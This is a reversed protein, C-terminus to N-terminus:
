CGSPAGIATLYTHTDNYFNTEDTSTFAGIVVIAIQATSYNQPTGNGNEAMVFLDVSTISGSATANTAVSTGNQYLTSLTSSTRSGIWLGKVSSYAYDPFNGDNENYFMDGSAPAVLSYSDGSASFAGIFYGNSNASANLNCAGLTAANIVFNPSTATLPDFGTDFYCSTGDGTYGQNANFTCGHATLGYSTSIWNLVANATSNIATVYLADTHAVWGHTVGNCIYTTVASANESGDMRAKLATAQSCGASSVKVDGAIGSGIVNQAPAPAPTPLFFVSFALAALIKRM